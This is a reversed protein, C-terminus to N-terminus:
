TYDSLPLYKPRVSNVRRENGLAIMAFCANMSRDWGSRGPLNAFGKSVSSLQVLCTVFGCDVEISGHRVPELIDLIPWGRRSLGVFSRFFQVKDRADTVVTRRELANCVGDLHLPKFDLPTFVSWVDRGENVIPVLDM